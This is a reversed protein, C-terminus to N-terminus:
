GPGHANYRRDSGSGTQRFSLDAIVVFLMFAILAAIICRVALAKAACNLRRYFILSTATALALVSVALSTKSQSIKLVVLDLFLLGAWILSHWSHRLMWIRAVYFIAAICALSGTQNKQLHLGRYGIETYSWSPMALMAMDLITVIAVARAMVRLLREPEQINRCPCHADAARVWFARSPPCSFRPLHELQHICDRASATYHFASCDKTDQKPANELEAIHHQCLWVFRADGVSGVAIWRQHSTGM